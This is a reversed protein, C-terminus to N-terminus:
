NQSMANLAAERAEDEFRPTDNQPTKKPEFRSTDALTSALQSRLIFNIGCKANAGICRLNAAAGLKHMAECSQESLQGWKQRRARWFHSFNKIAGRLRVIGDVSFDAGRVRAQSSIAHLSLFVARLERDEVIASNRAVYSLPKRGEGGTLLGQLQLQRTRGRVRDTATAAIRRNERAAQQPTRSHSSAAAARRERAAFASSPPTTKDRRAKRRSQM